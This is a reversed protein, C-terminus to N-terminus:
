YGGQIELEQFYEKHEFDFNFIFLFQTTARIGLGAEKVLNYLHSTFCLPCIHVSNQCAVCPKSKETIKNHHKMFANLKSKIQKHEPFKKIWKNFAKTICNPCLPHNIDQGCSLCDLHQPMWNAESITLPENQQYNTTSHQARKSYSKHPRFAIEKEFSYTQKAVNRKQKM